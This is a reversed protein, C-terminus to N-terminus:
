HGMGFHSERVLGVGGVGREKSIGFSIGLDSGGM